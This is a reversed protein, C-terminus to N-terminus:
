SQQCWVRTCPSKGPPPLRPFKKNRGGPRRFGINRWQLFIHVNVTQNAEQGQVATYRNVTVCSFHASSGYFNSTLIQPRARLNATDQEDAGDSWSCNWRRGHICTAYRISGNRRQIAKLQNNWKNCIKQPAIERAANSWVAGVWNDSEVTISLLCQRFM